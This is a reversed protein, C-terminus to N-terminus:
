PDSCATRTALAIISAADGQDTNLGGVTNYYYDNTPQTARLSRRIPIRISNCSRRGLRSGDPQAPHYQRPVSDAVGPDPLGRCNTQYTTSSPDYIAGKQVTIPQGNVDTGTYSPGLLSSFDGGKMAATPVTTYGSYGLSPVSGGSDAIRTGQYDGFIFLKNKIIPGGATAGFQNQVSRGARNAPAITPGPTPM